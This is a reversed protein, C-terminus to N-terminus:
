PTQPTLDSSPIMAPTTSGPPIWSLQAYPGSGAGQWYDVRVPIAAGGTLAVPACRRAGWTYADNVLKVGNVYVFASYAATMCIQYTGTVPARLGGAWRISYGSSGYSPANSAAFGAALNQVTTSMLSNFTLGQWSQQTLGDSQNPDLTVLQANVHQSNSDLAVAALFQNPNDPNFALSETITYGLYETNWQENFYTLRQVDSGDPNMTWYDMGGANAGSVRGFILKDNGPTFFAFESYNVSGAPQAAPSLTTLGTGDVGIEDIQTAAVGSTGADSAFIIHQDDPTFGYPEYFSNADPNITRINALSPVGGSWVINAVKLVWYGLNLVAPSTM